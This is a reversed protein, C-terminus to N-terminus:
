RDAAKGLERVIVAAQEVSVWGGTDTAPPGTVAATTASALAPFRPPLEEGTLSSRTGTAEGVTCYRRATGHSVRWREALVEAATSCGARTVPNEPGLVVSRNELEGAVRLKVADLVAQAEGLVTVADLLEDRGLSGPSVLGALADRLVSAPTPLAPTPTATM